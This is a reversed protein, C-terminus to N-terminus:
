LRGKLSCSTEWTEEQRYGTERLSPCFEGMRCVTDWGAFRRQQPLVYLSHLQTRTLVDDNAVLDSRNLGLIRRLCLVHFDCVRRERRSYLSWFESSYFHRGCVSLVLSSLSVLAVLANGNHRIYKHHTYTLSIDAAGKTYTHTQTQRHTYTHTHAHTLLHIVFDFFIQTVRKSKQFSNM